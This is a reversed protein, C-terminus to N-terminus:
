GRIEWFDSISIIKFIDIDAGLLEEIIKEFMYADARDTKEQVALLEM